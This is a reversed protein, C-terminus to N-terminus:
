HATGAVMLGPLLLVLVPSVAMVRVLSLALQRQWQRLERADVLADSVLRHVRTGIPSDVISLTAAGASPGAGRHGAVALLARMMAARGHRAVAVGDAELEVLLRVQAQMGQLLGVRSALQGAIDAALVLRHHRRELHASEHAILASLDEGSLLAAAGETLYVARGRGPCCWAAPRPDPVYVLPAGPCAPHAAATRGATRRLRQRARAVEMLEALAKRAAVVILVAAVLATANWAAVVAGDAYQGHLVDEEAHLAWVLAPELVDHALVLLVSPIALFCAVALGMWAHVALGPHRVAWSASALLRDGIVGAVVLLLLLGGAILMSM